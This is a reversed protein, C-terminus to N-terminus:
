KGYGASGLPPRSQWLTTGVAYLTYGCNRVNSIGPNFFSTYGQSALRLNNNAPSDFQM